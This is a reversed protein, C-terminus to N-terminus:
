IIIALLIIFAFGVKSSTAVSLSPKETAPSIVSFSVSTANKNVTVPVDPTLVNMTFTISKGGIIIQRVRRITSFLSSIDVPLSGAKTVQVTVRGVINMNGDVGVIELTVPADLKVIEVSLTASAVISKEAIFYQQTSVTLQSKTNGKDTFFLVAQNTDIPQPPLLTVNGVIESKVEPKLVVIVPPSTPGIITPSPAKTTTTTPAQTTTTTPAITTTPTPTATTAPSQDLVSLYITHTNSVSVTLNSATHTSLVTPQQVSNTNGTGLAGETNPGWGVFAKRTGDTAVAVMNSGCSISEITLGQLASTTNVNTPLYRDLVDDVGNLLTSGSGWTYVKGNAIAAANTDTICMSTVLGPMNNTAVLQPEFFIQLSNSNIGLNGGKGNTGWTYLKGDSALASAIFNGMAVKVFFKDILDTTNSMFVPYLSIGLISPVGLLGGENYGWTFVQGQVTAAITATEGSSVDTVPRGFVFYPVYAPNSRTDLTGDGLNAYMNNGWMILRGNSAVAAVSNRTCSIKTITIGSLVGTDVAIPVLSFAIDSVVLAGYRNDGWSYVNGDALAITVGTGAQVSTVLKGALAGDTLPSRPNYVNEIPSGLANYQNDGFAYVREINIPSVTVVAGRYTSSSVGLIADKGILSTVIPRIGTVNDVKGNGLAGNMNYGFSTYYDNANLVVTLGSTTVANITDGLQRLAKSTELLTPELYYSAPDDTLLLGHTNSGWGFLDGNNTLAYAAEDNLAIQTIRNMGISSADIAIPTYQM